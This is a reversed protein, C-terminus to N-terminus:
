EDSGGRSRAAWLTMFRARPVIRFLARASESPSLLHEVDVQAFRRSLAKRLTGPLFWRERVPSDPSYMWLGRREDIWKVAINPLYPRRVNWSSANKDIVLLLGGPRLVRDIEVIVADVAPLHQFVDVAIVSDFSRAAFPLRRGSGRVRDFGEAAQLMTHSIDIGQVVAGSEQLRRAFRGKGCGLDLIRQGELSALRRLLAQYRYDDAAVDSKFRAHLLDFRDAVFSEQSQVGRM